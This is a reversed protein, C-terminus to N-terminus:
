DRSSEDTGLDGMKVLRLKGRVYGASLRALARELEHELLANALVLANVAARMDGGCARIAADTAAELTESDWSFPAQPGARVQRENM